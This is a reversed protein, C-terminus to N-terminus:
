GGQKHAATTTKAFLLMTLYAVAAALEIIALATLLDLGRLAILALVTVALKIVCWWLYPRQHGGMVLFKGSVTPLLTGVVYAASALLIPVVDNVAIQAGTTTSVYLVGVSAGYALVALAASLVIARRVVYRAEVSNRSRLATSFRMDYIPAFAQFSIGAFGGAVRVVSAWVGAYSGLFGVALSSSQFALGGVLNSTAAAWNISAYQALSTLHRSRSLVTGLSRLNGMGAVLAGLAFCGSAAVALAYPSDLLLSILLTALVNAVAYAIRTIAFRRHDGRHILVTVAMLYLGQSLSFVAAWFVTWGWATGLLIGIVAVFALFVTVAVLAFSSATFSIERDSRNSLGPYISPFALTFAYSVIGAVAGVIVLVAVGDLRALAIPIVLALLNLGQAGLAGVTSVSRASPRRIRIKPVM